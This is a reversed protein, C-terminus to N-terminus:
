DAIALELIEQTYVRTSSKLMEFRFHDGGGDIIFGHGFRRKQIRVFKDGWPVTKRHRESIEYGVQHVYQVLQAHRDVSPRIEDIRVNMFKRLMLINSIPEERRALNSSCNVHRHRSVRTDEGTEEEDKASDGFIIHPDKGSSPFLFGVSLVPTLNHAPGLVGLIRCEEADELSRNQLYRLHRIVPDRKMYPPKYFQDM